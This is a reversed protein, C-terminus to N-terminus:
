PWMRRVHPMRQSHAIAGQIGDSRADAAEIVDVPAEDPERDGNLQEAREAVRPGPGVQQLGRPRVCADREAGHEARVEGAHRGVGDHRSVRAIGRLDHQDAAGHRARRDRRDHRREEHKGADVDHEAAAREEGSGTRRKPGATGRGLPVPKSTGSATSAPTPIAASTARERNAPTSSCMRWPAASSRRGTRKRRSATLQCSAAQSARTPTAKM